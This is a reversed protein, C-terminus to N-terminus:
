LSSELVPDDVANTFQSYNDGEYRRQSLFFRRLFRMVSALRSNQQKGESSDLTEVEVEPTGFLRWPIRIADDSRQIRSIPATGTWHLVPTFWDNREIQFM